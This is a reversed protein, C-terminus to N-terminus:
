NFKHGTSVVDGNAVVIYLMRRAKNREADNKFTVVTQNAGNRVRAKAEVLKASGWSAPLKSQSVQRMIAGRATQAPSVPARAQDHEPHAMAPVSVAAAAAALVLFPFRM